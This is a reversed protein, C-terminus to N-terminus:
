GGNRSMRDILMLRPCSHKGPKSRLFCFFAFDNYKSSFPLCLICFSARVSQPRCFLSCERHWDKRLVPVVLCRFIECEGKKLCPNVRMSLFAHPLTCRVFHSQLNSAHANPRSYFSITCPFIHFYFEDGVVYLEPSFSPLLTLM